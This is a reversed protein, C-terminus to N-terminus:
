NKSSTQIAQEFQYKQQAQKQHGLAVFVAVLVGAVISVINGTNGEYLPFVLAAVAVFAAFSPFLNVYVM